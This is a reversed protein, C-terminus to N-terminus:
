TFSQFVKKIKSYGPKIESLVCIVESVSILEQYSTTYINSKSFADRYARDLPGLIRIYKRYSRVFVEFYKTFLKILVILEGLRGNFEDESLTSYKKLSTLKKYYDPLRKDVTNLGEGEFTSIFKVIDRIEKPNEKLSFIRSFAMTYYRFLEENFISIFKPRNMDAFLHQCEHITTSAIDDDNALGFASISNDIMIYVKKVGMHYFGLIAKDSPNGFMKHKLFKLIGPVQFAPIIKKSQVLSKVPGYVPKGRGSKEFSALFKEVLKDSSYVKFGFLNEVEKLGIPVVFLEQLNQDDM